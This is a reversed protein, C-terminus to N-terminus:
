QINAFSEQINLFTGSDKILKEFKRTYEFFNLFSKSDKLFNEFKRSIKRIKGESGELLNFGCVKLDVVYLM